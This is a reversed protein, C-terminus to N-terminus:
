ILSIASLSICFGWYVQEPFHNGKYRQLSLKKPKRSNKIKFATLHNRIKFKQNWTKRKFHIKPKIESSTKITFTQRINTISHCHKASYVLNEAIKLRLKEAM